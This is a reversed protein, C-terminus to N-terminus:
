FSVMCSKTVATVGTCSPIIEQITKVYVLMSLQHYEVTLLFYTTRICPRFYIRGHFSGAALLGVTFKCYRSNVM